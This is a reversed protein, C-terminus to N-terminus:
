YGTSFNVTEGGGTGQSIPITEKSRKWKKGNKEVHKKSRLIKVTKDYDNWIDKQRGIEGTIKGM